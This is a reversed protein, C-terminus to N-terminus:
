ERLNEINQVWIQRNEGDISVVFEEVVPIMLDSNALALIEYHPTELVEEVEGLLEGTETKVQMGILEDPYFEGDPLAPRMARTIFLQAGILADASPSDPLNFDCVWFGAKLQSNQITLLQRAGDKEACLQASAAFRNEVDSFAQVRLKSKDWRDKVRGVLVDWSNFDEM